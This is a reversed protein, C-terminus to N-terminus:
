TIGRMTKVEAIYQEETMAGAKVFRKMARQEDETLEIRDKGSKRPSSGSEVSPAEEKRPNIFKESYAKKVRKEVEKLIAEPAVNPSAQKIAIGVQDAFIRMEPDYNYWSNRDVWAQFAPNPPPTSEEDFGQKVAAAKQADRTELIQSDIEIVRDADGDILAAKKQEKLTDLARQYEVKAVKDHHERFLQMTRKLNRNERKIDEIKSFLEGRDVFEKAPRWESEDGGEEVFKEKPKWGQSMAREEVPSTVIEIPEQGLEEGEEVM